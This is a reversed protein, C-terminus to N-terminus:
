RIIQLKRSSMVQGDIGKLICFYTGSPLRSINIQVEDKQSQVNVSALSNSGTISYM